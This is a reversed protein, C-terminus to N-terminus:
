HDFPPGGADGPDRVASVASRVEAGLQDDHAADALVEARRLHLLAESTKGARGLVVGLLYELEGRMPALRVATELAAAAEPLRGDAALAEGLGRHAEVWTSDIRIAERFEDIAEARRGQQLLLVALNGRAEVLEPERRLAERFHREAEAAEGRVALVIGLNASAAGLKPDLRISEAFHRRAGELDGEAALQVGLNYHTPARQTDPDFLRWNVNAAGVAALAAGAALPRWRRARVLAACGVIGAAAFLVLVPALPHRYRGVVFFLTVSSALTIIIAYLVWLRRREGWTVWVGLVALPCLVGFHLLHSLVALLSSHEAFTAEDETDTVDVAHWVLMWKWLMLRVWAAPHAAMWAFARGAWFRSVEGPGVPHGVTQEALETADLREVEARGRGARLSVYGGTAGAHNGIYFNPGLQATTLHFEGGVLANRAGVPMLVCALGAVFAGTWRLRRHPATTRFGLWLWVLLVPVLALANERTLALGGLTVGALTWGRTAPRCSVTGLVWLLGTTLFIDLSSKQLLGDFFIATPYIALLVGAWVGVAPSFFEQGGRCLFVCAAAGLVIQVVRVWFPDVGLVTYVVGLLYPYLPAQYFVEHGLWDGAAIRRGWDHYVAADGVLVRFLDVHALQGVYVARLVLALIFVGLAGPQM